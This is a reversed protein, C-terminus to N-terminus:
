RAGEVVLARLRAALERRPIGLATLTRRHDWLVMWSAAHAMPLWAALFLLRRWGGPAQIAFFRRHFELHAREDAALEELAARPAGPPLRAALGRYFGAGVVEAAFMVLLKFRIGGLRRVSAFARATWTTELLEGGLARVLGALIHAHRGEEAIFLAVARRYDDDVGRMRSRAMDGVIRGEGTEGIQFRALSLALQSAVAPPLNVVEDFAPFPRQRNREFHTKWRSWPWSPPLPPAIPVVIPHTTNASISV